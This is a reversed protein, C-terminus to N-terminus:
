EWSYEITEGTKLQELWKELIIKMDSIKIGASVGETYENEITVGNSSVITTCCNGFSDYFYDSQESAQNLIEIWRRCSNISYQIDGSLFSRLPDNDNLYTLEVLPYNEMRNEHFILHNSFNKMKKM